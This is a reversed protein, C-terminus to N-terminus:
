AELSDDWIYLLCGELLPNVEKIVDLPVVICGESDGINKKAARAASVYDGDHFVVGRARVNGNLKPELGDLRRSINFSTSRGLAAVFNKAKKLSTYNEAFRMAGLSTMLSGSVNSFFNPLGDKDPDSKTGHACWTTKFPAFSKMDIMFWRIEYDRKSMDGIVIYRKNKIIDKDYWSLARVIAKMPIAPNLRAIAEHRVETTKPKPVQSVDKSGFIAALLKEIIAKFPAFWSPTEFEESEKEPVSPDVEVVDFVFKRTSGHVVGQGAAIAGKRSMVDQRWQTSSLLARQYAAIMLIDQEPTFKGRMQSWLSANKTNYRVAEDMLAKTYRPKPIKLSGNQTVIDFMFCFARESMLGWDDCYKAASGAVDMCAEKQIAITEPLSLFKKWALSWESRVNTGTLFVTECFQLAESVSMNAMSSIPRPFCADMKVSGHRSIFPKLIKSQLSGQGANWQLFGVSIGQKDFNGTVQDFGRGEFQGTVSMAKDLLEPTIKM